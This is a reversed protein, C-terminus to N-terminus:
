NKSAEIKEINKLFLELGQQGCKNKIIQECNDFSFTYISSKVKTTIYWDAVFKIINIELQERTEKSLFSKSYLRDDVLDLYEKVFFEPLNYGGKSKLSQNEFYSYNDVIISSKYTCNFLYTTHPFAQVLKIGKSNFFDFDEKWLGISSLYTTMLDVKKMFLDFNDFCEIKFHEKLANLGFYLIPKKEINVSILDIMKKLSGEKFLAYDNQCKLFEGKGLKLAEVINFGQDPVKQYVLNDISSFESKIMNKTEEDPSDDSVCVEFLKHEVDQSYISNLTNRLLQARKYSPICISLLCNNNM